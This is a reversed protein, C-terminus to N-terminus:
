GYANKTNSMEKFKSIFRLIYDILRDLNTEVDIMPILDNVKDKIVNYFSNSTTCGQIQLHLM